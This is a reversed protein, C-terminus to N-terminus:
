KEGKKLYSPGLIALNISWAMPTTLTVGSIFHKSQPFVKLNYSLPISGVMHIPSFSLFTYIACKGFGNEHFCRLLKHQLLNIHHLTVKYGLEVCVYKIELEYAIPMSPPDVISPLLQM